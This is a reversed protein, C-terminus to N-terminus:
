LADNLYWAMCGAERVRKRGEESLIGIGGM